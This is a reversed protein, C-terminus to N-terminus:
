EGWTELNKRYNETYFDELKDVGANVVQSKMEMYRAVCEEETEAMVAQVWGTNVIDTVLQNISAVESDPPLTIAYYASFDFISEALNENMLKKLKSKDSFNQDLWGYTGDSMVLGASILLGYQGGMKEMTDWDCKSTDGSLPIAYKETIEWKGTAPDYTWTSDEENPIGWGIIKIGLDTNEFDLWKMIDEPNKAKDTIIMRSGLSSKPNFTTKEVGPAKVNVHTVFMDENYNEVTKVWMEHGYTGTPWWAGVFGAYRQNTLKAGWEEMTMTFSDPDILGARYFQNVYKTMELGEDTNVWHIFENDDTIEWGRKLGWMGLFNLYTNNNKWFGFAYTKEGADNTPHTEVLQKLVEFYKDTTSVDPTGAEQWWDYRVQPAYDTWGGIGWQSGLSYLEGNENKYRNLYKGMAKKLNPGYNDVLETLEVARGQEAWTAAQLATMGTIVDPYDNSVLMLNLREDMDTDYVIKNLEVNFNDLLWQRKKESNEAVTDPNDQGAYFDIKITKEPIEWGFENVKSSTDSTSSDSTSTKTSTTDQTSTGGSSDKSSKCGSLLTVTMAAALFACTFKKLNVV